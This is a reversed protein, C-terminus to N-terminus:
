KAQVREREAKKRLEREEKISERAVDCLLMCSKEISNKIAQLKKLLEYRETALSKVLKWYKRSAEDTRTVLDNYIDSMQGALELDYVEVIKDSLERLVKKFGSSM